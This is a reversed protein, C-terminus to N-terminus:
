QRNLYDLSDPNNDSLEAMVLRADYLNESALHDALARLRRDFQEIEASQLRVPSRSQERAFEKAAASGAIVVQGHRRLSDGVSVATASAAPERGVDVETVLWEPEDAFARAPAYTAALVLTALAFRRSGNRFWTM